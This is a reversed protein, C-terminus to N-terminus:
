VPDIFTSYSPGESARFGLGWDKVRLGLGQVRKTERHLSNKRYRVSQLTGCTQGGPQSRLPMEQENHWVDKLREAFASRKPRRYELGASSAARTRTAHSCVSANRLVKSIQISDDVLEASVSAVRLLYLPDILTVILSRYYPEILLRTWHKLFASTRIASM